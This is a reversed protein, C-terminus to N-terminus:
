CMELSSKGVHVDVPLKSLMQGTVTLSEDANMANVERLGVIANELSEANPPEIFPFKRADNLGMSVMHLVTGDLPVRHIEPSSYPTMADYESEEFLRFCQLVNSLLLPM